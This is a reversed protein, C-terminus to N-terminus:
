AIVSLPVHPGVPLAISHDAIETANPYRVPNYPGYKRQYYALRPVPHPYYVSTEMDAPASYDHLKAPFERVLSMCYHSSGPGDLVRGAVKERLEEFNERRRALIKDIRGLQSRGLAAQMEGMRYNLGIAPVDYKLNIGLEQAAALLETGFREVGHARMRRAKEATGEDHTVFMGGEGTTIHKTPYFSFCGADGFLGVHTGNLRAGLALACDEIVFLDHRHAVSMIAPMGCPIGVFHMVVVAKTKTTIAAEILDATVNGTAPDCDVFVCDAGTWEVTNATSCHTMAPVIVEDGPGVGFVTYALHLAAACSSTTVCYGGCLFETFEQEFMEAEPGHALIPGSLVRMVAEKDDQTIWPRAFPIM